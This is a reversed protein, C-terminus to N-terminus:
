KGRAFCRSLDYRKKTRKPSRQKLTDRGYSVELITPSPFRWISPELETYHREPADWPGVMSLEEKFMEFEDATLPPPAPPADLDVLKDTHTDLVYLRVKPYSGAGVGKWGILALLGSVPEYLSSVAHFDVQGFISDKFAGLKEDVYLLGRLTVKVGHENKSTLLYRQTRASYGLCEWLESFTEDFLVANSDRSRLVLRTRGMDVDHQPIKAVTRIVELTTSKGEVSARQVTTGGSPAYPRTAGEAYVTAMESQPWSRAAADSASSSLLAFLTLAVFSSGVSALMAWM